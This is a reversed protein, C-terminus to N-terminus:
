TDVSFKAELTLHIKVFYDFETGGLRTSVRLRTFQVYMLRESSMM